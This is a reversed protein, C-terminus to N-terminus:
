INLSSSSLGFRNGGRGFFGSAGGKKPAWGPLENQTRVGGVTRPDGWSYNGWMNNQMNTQWDSMSDKLNQIDGALSGFRDDYNNSSATSPAPSPAPSTTGSGGSSMGKKENSGYISAALWEKWDRDGHQGKSVADVWYDATNSPDDNFEPDRNFAGQYLGGLYDQVQASSPGTPTFSPEKFNQSASKPINTLQYGGKEDKYKEQPHAEITLNSTNVPPQNPNSLSIDTLQRPEIKIEAARKKHEASMQDKAMNYAKVNFDNQRKLADNKLQSEAQVAKNNRRAGAMAAALSLVGFGGKGRVPQPGMRQRGLAKSALAPGISAFLAM